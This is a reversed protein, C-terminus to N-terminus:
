VLEVFIRGLPAGEMGLTTVDIGVEHCCLDVQRDRICVEAHDHAVRKRVPGGHHERQWVPVRRERVQNGVAGQKLCDPAKAPCDDVYLKM